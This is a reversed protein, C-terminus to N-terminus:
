NTRIEHSGWWEPKQSHKWTAFSAKAGKYYNRYSIVSDGVVKYEDPMAPPPDVWGDKHLNNPAKELYPILTETKHIKGYRKTYEKHMYKLLEVHWFYHDKSARTWVASPHNVHTAVYLNQERARTIRSM